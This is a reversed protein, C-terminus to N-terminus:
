AESSIADGNDDFKRMQKAWRLGCANCLTKPGTPGKRWEPSDTRGCDICVYQDSSLTKKLKKKKSKDESEDEGASPTSGCPYIDSSGSAGDNFASRAPSLLLDGRGSWQGPYFSFNQLSADMAGPGNSQMPLSSYAQTSENMNATLMTLRQQSRENEIKLELLTDLKTETGSPFLKAV